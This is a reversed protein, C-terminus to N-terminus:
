ALKKLEFDDIMVSGSISGLVGLRYNGACAITFNLPVETWEGATTEVVAVPADRQDTVELVAKAGGQTKIKAKLQYSGTELYIGEYLRAVGKELGSLSGYRNMGTGEGESLVEAVSGNEVYTNWYGTGCYDFDSNRLEKMSQFNPDDSIVDSGHFLSMNPQWIGVKNNVWKLGSFPHGEKPDWVNYPDRYDTGNAKNEWFGVSYFDNDHVYVNRFQIREMDPAHEAWYFVAFGKCEGVTVTKNHDIEINEVPFTLNGDYFRYGRWDGYNVGITLSDDSTNFDCGTVRGNRSSTIHLGDGCGCTYNKITVANVLFGDCQIVDIAYGNYGDVHIDSVILNKTGVMVMVALHMTDGCDNHPMMTITGDGDSTVRVNENGYGSYIFPFNWTWTHCWPNRSLPFKDYVNNGTLPVWPDGRMHTGEGDDISPILPYDLPYVYDTNDSNQLIKAGKALHLTVNSQLYINGTLFTHGATLVVTGGGLRSVDNIARQIVERDSTVGDGKARYPSQMIDVVVGEQERIEPKVYGPDESSNGGSSTGSQKQCAFLSIAMLVSLTFTIFLRFIKKM